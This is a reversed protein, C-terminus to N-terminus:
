QTPTASGESNWEAGSRSDVVLQLAKGMSGVLGGIYRGVEFTGIRRM